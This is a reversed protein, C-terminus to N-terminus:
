KEAGTQQPLDFTVVLCRNGEAASLGVGQWRTYGITTSGPLSVVGFSTVAVASTREPDLTLHLIGFRSETKVASDGHIVVTTCGSATLIALLAAFLSSSIQGATSRRHAQM